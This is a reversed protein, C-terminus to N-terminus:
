CGTLSTNLGRDAAGGAGDEAPADAWPAPAAPRPGASVSAGGAAAPVDVATVSACVAEVPVSGAAAAPGAAAPACVAAAAWCGVANTTLEPPVTVGMPRVVRFAPGGIVTPAFGPAIAIVGSPLGAATASMPALVTVGM